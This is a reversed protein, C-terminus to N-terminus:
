HELKTLVNVRLPQFLWGSNIIRTIIESDGIVKRLINLSGNVDANILKGTSSQFLGRKVRKGLYNEHKNIEELALGDCKSTYSEENIVLNIGYMDCKYKLYNLLMDYSIQVFTQNNRKGINISDKWGKNYGVVINGIKNEILKNVIMNSLKHFIDSLQNNHKSYLEQIQKSTKKNNTLESKFRSIQKNFYQNKAKIQRGNFLIQKENPLIMTAINNIGLDISAYLNNDLEINYETNDIYVIEIEFSKNLKPIVRVQQFSKFKTQYKEFQPIKIKTKKDLYLYGDDKISCCQNTYILQNVDQKYKPFRPCGKYKSKNKSYDKISKVYNGLNKDLTRLCQQAVQAKLLKYNIDGDLNQLTQLEKNLYSYNLWRNNTKLETKVLYLAQNYLNKSIKCLELIKNNQKINFKYVLRM